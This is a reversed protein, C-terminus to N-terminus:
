TVPRHAANRAAAVDCGERPPRDAGRGATSSLFGRQGFPQAWGREDLRKILSSKAGTGSASRASLSRLAENQKLRVFMAQVKELWEVVRVYTHNDSHRIVAEISKRVTTWYRSSSCSSAAPSGATTTV